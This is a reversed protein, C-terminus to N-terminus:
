LHRASLVPVRRSYSGAQRLTTRDAILNTTFANLRLMDLKRKPASKRISAHM